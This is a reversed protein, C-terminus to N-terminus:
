RRSRVRLANEESLHEIAMQRLKEYMPLFVEVDANWDWLLSVALTCKEPGDFAPRSRRGETMPMIKPLFREVFALLDEQSMGVPHAEDYAPWTTEIVLPRLLWHIGACDAVAVQLSAESEQTIKELLSKILDEDSLILDLFEDEDFTLSVKGEDLTLETM